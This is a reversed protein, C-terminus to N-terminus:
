ADHGDDEHSLKHHLRRMALYIVLVVLPVSAATVVEPTVIKPLLALDKAGKAVYTILGVVYYSIAAVSLGEVTQQLRLQLSARKNMSQLLDRNQHELEFQIGTRLLDSTRALQQSLRRQRDEVAACTDIAPELRRRFFATISVYDGEQRERILEIRSKVQAYYARSAGFRFATRAQQAEIAAAIRTLRALLDEKARADPAAAIAQTIQGLDQEMRLLEPGARRAEPLGLLALTRYTELELVRQVLRGARTPTLSKSEILFRTFGKADVQFDTVLRASGESVDVVCLGLPNFLAGPDPSLAEPAVASMHVAAILDGPAAFAFEGAGIPDPQAFPVGADRHTLWTYTTFETHQEWRLEWTGFPFRHYKAEPAPPALGRATALEAVARRDARAQEDSTMFAFHYIRQPLTLPLFPRAHLEGLVLARAAHQTMGTPGPLAPARSAERPPPSPPTQDKSVPDDGWM